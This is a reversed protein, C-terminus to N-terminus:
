RGKSRCVGAGEDEDAVGEATEVGVGEDGGGGGGGVGDDEGADALGPDLSGGDQFGERRADLRRLARILEAVSVRAVDGDDIDEAVDVDEEPVGHVRGLRRRIRFRRLPGKADDLMEAEADRYAAPEVRPIERPRRHHQIALEVKDDATAETRPQFASGRIDPAPTPVEHRIILGPRAM